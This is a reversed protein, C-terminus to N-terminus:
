MAVMVLRGYPKWSRMEWLSKGFSRQAVKSVRSAASCYARCSSPEQSLTDHRRSQEFAFRRLLLYPRYLATNHLIEPMGRHRQRISLEEVGYHRPHRLYRGARQVIFPGFPPHAVHLADIM